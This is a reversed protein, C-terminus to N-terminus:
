GFRRCGPVRKPDVFSVVQIKHVGTAALANILELKEATPVVIPEFQFGERPGEEHIQVQRPLDSM